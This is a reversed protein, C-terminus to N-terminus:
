ARLHNPTLPASRLHYLFISISGYVRLWTSRLFTVETECTSAAALKPMFNTGIGLM